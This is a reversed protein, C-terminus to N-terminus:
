ANEESHSAKSCYVVAFPSHKTLVEELVKKLGSLHGFLLDESETANGM